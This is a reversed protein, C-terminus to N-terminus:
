QSPAIFNLGTVNDTVQIIQSSFTYRRAIVSVTYSGTPVNDFNFFGFTGTTFSRSFNNAGTLTVLSNALGMGSDTAVRGSISVNLVVPAPGM